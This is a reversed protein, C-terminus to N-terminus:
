GLDKVRSQPLTIGASELAEIIDDAQLSGIGRTKILDEYSFGMLDTVTNVGAEKLAAATGSSLTLEAIPIEAEQESVLLEGRQQTAEETSLHPLCVVRFGIKMDQM